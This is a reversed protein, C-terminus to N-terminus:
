IIDIDVDIYECKSISVKLNHTVPENSHDLEVEQEIGTDLSFHPNSKQMFRLIMVTVINDESIYDAGFIVPDEKIDWRYECLNMQIVNNSDHPLKQFM